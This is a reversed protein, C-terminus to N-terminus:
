HKALLHNKCVKEVHANFLALLVPRSRNQVGTTSCADYSVADRLLPCHFGLKKCTGDNLITHYCQTANLMSYLTCDPVLLVVVV